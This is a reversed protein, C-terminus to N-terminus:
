SGVNVWLTVKVFKQKFTLSVGNGVTTGVMIGVITGVSDGVTIGVLGGVVTGVVKGVCTGVFGGVTVGVADGEMTGVFGGVLTGVPKGEMSDRAFIRLQALNPAPSAWSRIKAM